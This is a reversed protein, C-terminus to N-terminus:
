ALCCWILRRERSWICKEWFSQILINSYIRVPWINEIEIMDIYVAPCSWSINYSNCNIGLLDIVCVNVKNFIICSNINILSGCLFFPLLSTKHLDLICYQHNELNYLWNVEGLFSRMSNILKMVLFTPCHTFM